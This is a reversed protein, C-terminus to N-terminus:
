IFFNLNFKKMGNKILSNSISNIDYKEQKDLFYINSNNVLNINNITCINSKIDMFKYLSRLCNIKTDNNSIISIKNKISKKILYKYKSNINEKSSIIENKSKVLYILNNININLRCYPCILKNKHLIKSVCNSCFYHNCLTKINNNNTFCITCTNNVFETDIRFHKVNIYNNDQIKLENIKIIKQSYNRFVCINIINYFLKNTLEYKHLNVKFFKDLLFIIDKIQIKITKNVCVIIKTYKLKSIDISPDLVIITDYVNNTNINNINNINNIYHSQQDKNGIIITNKYTILEDILFKLLDYYIICGNVNYKKLILKRKEIIKKSHIDLYYDNLSFFNFDNSITNNLSIKKNVSKNICIVNHICENKSIIINNLIIKYLLKFQPICKNLRLYNQLITCNVSLFVKINHKTYFSKNDKKKSFIKKNLIRQIQITYLDSNDPINLLTIIIKNNTDYINKNVHIIKENVYNYSHFLQINKMYKRILYM